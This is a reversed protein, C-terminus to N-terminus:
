GDQDMNTQYNTWHVQQGNVTIFFEDCDWLTLIRNGGEYECVCFRPSDRTANASFVISEEQEHRYVCAWPDVQVFIPAEQGNYFEIQFMQSELLTSKFEVLGQRAASVPVVGHQLSYL